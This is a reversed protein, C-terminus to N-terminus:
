CKAESYINKEFIEFNQVDSPFREIDSETAAANSWIEHRRAFQDNQKWNRGFDVTKSMRVNERKVCRKNLFPVIKFTKSPFIDIDQQTAAANYWMQTPINKYIQWKKVMELLNM